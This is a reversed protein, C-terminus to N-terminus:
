EASGNRWGQEGILPVFMVAGLNREEFRTEGTRTLKCLVQEGRPGIPIVLHGGIALQQKLAQPVDPGGASVLIADFPAEAELGRTGDGVRIDVNDYGLAAIRARALAALASRREIAFVRDAIQGLVAAAYGSGAGVELARDGPAVEAAEIMAAVIWPQSITQEEGIPLPSDRYAFKELGAPVFRERPVRRMAALVSADRIGRRALQMEVMRDRLRAFDTM